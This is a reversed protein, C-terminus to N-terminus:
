SGETDEVKLSADAKPLLRDIVERQREIEAEYKRRNLRLIIGGTSVTAVFLLWGLIGLHLSDILHILVEKRDGSQLNGTATWLTIVVVASVLLPAAYGATCFRNTIQVLADWVNTESKPAKAKKSKPSSM